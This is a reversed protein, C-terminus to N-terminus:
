GASAAIGSVAVIVLAVGVVQRRLLREGGFVLGVLVAVTAFQAALVGAVAVPGRDAAAVYLLYAGSDGLAWAAVRWPDETWRWWAGTRIAFPTTALLASGRIILFAWYVGLDEAVPASLVLICGWILAATVAPVVAARGGGHGMAALVVGVVALPLFAALLGTLKEGAAIALVAAV